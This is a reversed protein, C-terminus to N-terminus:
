MSSPSHTYEYTDDHTLGHPQHAGHVGHDGQMGMQAFTARRDPCADLTTCAAHIDLWTPPPNINNSAGLPTTPPAGCPSTADVSCGSPPGNLASLPSM